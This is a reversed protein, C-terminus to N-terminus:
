SDRFEQFVIRVLAGSNEIQASFHAGDARSDRAEVSLGDDNKQEACKRDYKLHLQSVPCQKPSVDSRRHANFGNTETAPRPPKHNLPDQSENTWDQNETVSEFARQLLHTEAEPIPPEGRDNASNIQGNDEKTCPHQGIASIKLCIIRMVCRCGDVPGNEEHVFSYKDEVPHTPLVKPSSENQEARGSNETNIGDKDLGDWEGNKM